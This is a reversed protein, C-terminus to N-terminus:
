KRHKLEDIMLQVEKRLYPLEYIKTEQVIPEGNDLELIPYGCKDEGALKFMVHQIKLTGPKYQPNHRLIIYLYTSLQLAYHFFNCDQIHKLPKLMMQHKGKFDAYSELDITKSTKYDIINVKGDIVEVWDSQGCIGASELYVFHEPYIGEELEQKPAVKLGDEYSGDFINLDKGERNITKCNLVDKERQDHYWTGLDTSRKNEKNWVDIIDQTKMGYWKSKKKQSCKEAVKQADFPQVFMDVLRTVSIWEMDPLDNDIYKHEDPYFKLM